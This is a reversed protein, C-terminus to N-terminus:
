TVFKLPLDAKNGTNLIAPTCGGGSSWKLGGLSPIYSIIHATPLSPRLYLKIEKRKCDLTLETHGIIVNHLAPESEPMLRMYTSATMRGCAPCLLFVYVWSGHDASTRVGAGIMVAQNMVLTHWGARTLLDLCWINTLLQTAPQTIRWWSRDSSAAFGKGARGPSLLCGCRPSVM